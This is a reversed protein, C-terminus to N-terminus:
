TTLVLTTLTLLRRMTTRRRHYHYSRRSRHHINMFGLCRRNHIIQLISNHISWSTSNHTIFEQLVVMYQLHILSRTPDRHLVRWEPGAPPRRNRRVTPRVSGQRRRHSLQYVVSSHNPTRPPRWTRVPAKRTVRRPEKIRATMVSTAKRTVYNAFPTATSIM